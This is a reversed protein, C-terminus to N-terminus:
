VFLHIISQVFAHNTVGRLQHHMPKNRPSKTVVWRQHFFGLFSVRTLSVLEGPPREDALPLFQKRKWGPFKRRFQDTAIALHHPEAVRRREVEDFVNM